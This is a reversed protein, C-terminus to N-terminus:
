RKEGDKYGNSERIDYTRNIHSEVTVSVDLQPFIENWEYEMRSWLVPHRYKVAKGIGLFDANLDKAKQVCEEIGKKIIESQQQELFCLTEDQFINRRTQVENINTEKKTKIDIRLLHGEKVIPVIKTKAGLIDMGINKEEQDKLEIVGTKIKNTVFSYSRSNPIDLFDILKFDKLIAYGSIGVDKELQNEAGKIRIIDETLYIAPVAIGFIENEDLESMLDLIRLKCTESILSAKDSLGKLYDPLFFGPINSKEFMDGAQGLTIYISSDLRFDHDRCLFDLYKTIDDKAANEGILYFNTHGWFTQNNTYTQFQRMASLITRDQASLVIIQEGSGGGESSDGGGSIQKKSTVTVKIKDPEECKDVAIADIINLDGIEKRPPLFSGDTCGTLLIIILVLVALKKSLNIEKGAFAFSHM